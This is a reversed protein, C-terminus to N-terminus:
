SEVKLMEVLKIYEEPAIGDARKEWPFKDKLELTYFKKLSNRLTKRRQNFAAQVMEIFLTDDIQIDKFILKICASIVKPQPYFVTPPISFLHEVDAFSRSLVALIGYADEGAQAALKEAFEKQVMFVTEGIEKRYEFLKYMLPRSINYPINGVVKDCPLYPTWDLSIANGEICRFRPYAAEKAKWKNALDTDLELGTLSCGSNLLYQTLAGHGPGIELIVDTEKPSIHGIIKRIINPDTLFHQGLSKKPIHKM